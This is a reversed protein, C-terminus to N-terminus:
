VHFEGTLVGHFCRSLCLNPLQVGTPQRPLIVGQSLTRSIAADGNPELLLREADPHRRSRTM